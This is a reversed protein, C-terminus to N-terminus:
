LRQTTAATADADVRVAGRSRHYKDRRERRYQDAAMAIATVPRLCATSRRGAAPRATSARCSMHHLVLEPPIPIRPGPPTNWNAINMMFGTILPYTGSGNTATFQGYQTSIQAGAPGYRVTGIAGRIGITAAPTAITVQHSL